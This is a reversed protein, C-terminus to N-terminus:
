CLHKAAIAGNHSQFGVPEIVNRPTMKAAIAGNHSQFQSFHNCCLFRLKAAIAGNHSQFKRGKVTFTMGAKCCDCWQPISVLLVSQIERIQSALCCDCWQPISVTSISQLSMQQQAAIAGNHSQFATTRRHIHLSCGAAIAGNHSQFKNSSAISKSFLACCDCWQPISHPTLLTNQAM